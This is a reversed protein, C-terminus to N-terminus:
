GDQTKGKANIPQIFGGNDGCTISRSWADLGFAERLAATQRVMEKAPNFVKGAQEGTTAGIVIQPGIEGECCLCYLSVGATLTSNHTPVMGRGALYLRSPSDVQICRVPRTEVPRCAVIQRHGSRTRRGDLAPKLRARKRQLGFVPRDARAIFRIRWMAGCDRGALRAREESCTPKFGLSRILEIVGDRLRPLTTVFACHGREDVTGDTDMLGRLLAMRQAISARLYAPPIHKDGLVGVARLKAQLSGKRVAGRGNSGLLFLRAASGSEREDASIGEARILDVIEEEGYGVTLRASASHGDGLWAGFTYPPIPLESEPLDLPAAVPISHNWEIRGRGVSLTAAIEATTRIDDDSSRAKGNTGNGKCRADARWLHGADAIIKEGDSFEVEFCEHDRFIPSTAVVRCPRGREDFVRDGVQLDGMRCWGGPTPIPTDLDLAKAGKRAMEIYVNSFRRLGDSARRWGFIVALIFIQPPELRITKTDWTGEIHPLKEIFDCVDNAHWPDFRYPWDARKLDDLHRKAALRVWKCHRLGNKDAAAERAYALAIAAYDRAHATDM